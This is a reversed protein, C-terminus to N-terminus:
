DYFERQINIMKVENSPVQEIKYKMFLANDDNHTSMIM